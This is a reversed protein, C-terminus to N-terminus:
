FLPKRMYPPTYSNAYRWVFGGATKFKGKCCHCICSNHIGLQRQVEQACPWTRIIEGTNKDIQYVSKSKPNKEGTKGYFPNKEGVFNGKHADSMKRICEESHHKGYFPNKEGKMAESIKRKSEESHYKEKNHLSLHESEKLFILEAAPRKYYADIEKLKKRPIAVGLRHHCHWKQSSDSVAEEYNQIHSIDERCVRKCSTENIM